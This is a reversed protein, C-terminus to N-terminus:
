TDVTLPPYDLVNTEIYKKTLVEVTIINKGVLNENM